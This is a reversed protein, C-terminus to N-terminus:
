NTKIDDLFSVGKMNRNVIGTAKMLRAITDIRESEFMGGSSNPKDYIIEKIGAYIQHKLCNECSALTVYSKCGKVSVKANLLAMMESHVMLAYKMPREYTMYKMDANDPFENYGVSVVKNDRDVIVCGVKTSPDSSKEAVAYALNMFYEDWNM